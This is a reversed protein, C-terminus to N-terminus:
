RFAELRSKRLWLLGSDADLTRVSYITAIQPLFLDDDAEEALIPQVPLSSLLTLYLLPILILIPFLSALSDLEIITNKEKVNKLNTATTLRWQM